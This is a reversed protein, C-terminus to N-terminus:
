EENGSLKPLRMVQMLSIIKGRSKGKGKMSKENEGEENEKGAKEKNSHWVHGIIHPLFNQKRKEIM